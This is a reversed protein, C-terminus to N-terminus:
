RYFGGTLGHVSLLSKQKHVSTVYRHVDFKIFEYFTWFTTQVTRFYMSNYGKRRRHHPKKRCRCIQRFALLPMVLTLLKVVLLSLVVHM